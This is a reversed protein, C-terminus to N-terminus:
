EASAPEKARAMHREAWVAEEEETIRHMGGPIPQVTRPAIGRKQWEYFTSRVIGWRRCFGAISRDHVKPTPRAM